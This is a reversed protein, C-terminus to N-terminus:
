SSSAQTDVTKRGSFIVLKSMAAGLNSIEAYSNCFDTNLKKFYIYITEVMFGNILKDNEICGFTEAANM